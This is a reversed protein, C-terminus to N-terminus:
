DFYIDASRAHGAIQGTLRLLRAQVPVHPKSGRWHTGVMGLETRAADVFMKRVPALVAFKAATHYGIPARMMEVDSLPTQAHVITARDFDKRCFFGIGLLSHTEGICVADFHKVAGFLM